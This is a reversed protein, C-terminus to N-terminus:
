PNELDTDLGQGESGKEYWSQTDHNMGIQLYRDVLRRLGRLLKIRPVRGEASIRLFWLPWGFWDM